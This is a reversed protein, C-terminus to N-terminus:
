KKMFFISNGYRLKIYDFNKDESNQWFASLNSATKEFSVRDDFYVVAISGDENRIYLEYSGNEGILLGVVTIDVDKIVKIFDQLQKFIVSDAIYGGVSLSKESASVYYKVYVGESFQSAERYIYGDHDLFFCPGSGEDDGKFGECAVASPQRETITIELTDLGDLEIDLSEIYKNSEALSKEIKDKPYFLINSRQLIKLYEGDILSGAQAVLNESNIEDVGNVQIDSIQLFSSRLTLVSVFILLIFTCVSLSVVVLKKKRKKELYKASQLARSRGIRM